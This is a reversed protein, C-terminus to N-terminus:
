ISAFFVVLFPVSLDVVVGHFVAAPVAHPGIHQAVVPLTIDITTAGGSAILAAPSIRRVIWPAAVVTVLERLVNALLAVAGLMPGRLEGLLVSSLSYYGFGSGVALQDSAPLPVLPSFLLVGALTGCVTAVPLLAARWSQSKLAALTAADSGISFGVLGMLVYLAVSAYAATEFPADFAFGAAAGAAFAGVLWLSFGHASRQTQASPKAELHLVWRNLAAAAAWTGVLAAATLAVALGVISGFLEVIQPSSGLEVGIMAMLVLITAQTARALAKRPLPLRRLAFGLAAAAVMTAFIWLM